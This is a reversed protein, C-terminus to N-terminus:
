QELPALSTDLKETIPLREDNGTTSVLDDISSRIETLPSEIQGEVAIGTIVSKGVLNETEKISGTSGPLPPPMPIEEEGCGILFVIFTLIIYVTLDRVM